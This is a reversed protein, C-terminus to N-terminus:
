SRRIERIVWRAFAAVWVVLIVVAGALLLLGPRLDVSHPAPDIVSIAVALLVALAAVALTVKM